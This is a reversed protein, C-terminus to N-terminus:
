AVMKGNVMRGNPSNWDSRSGKVRNCTTCAWALNSVDLAGGRSRPHIHDIEITDSYFNTPTPRRVEGIFDCYSCAVRAKNGPKIGVHDYFRRRETKTVSTSRSLTSASADSAVHM